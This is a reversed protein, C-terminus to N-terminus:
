AMEWWWSEEGRFDEGGYARYGVSHLVEDDDRNEVPEPLLGRGNAFGRLKWGIMRGGSREANSENERTDSVDQNRVAVQLAQWADEGLGGEDGADCAPQLHAKTERQHLLFNARDGGKQREDEEDAEKGAGHLLKDSVESGCRGQDGREANDTGRQVKGPDAPGDPDEKWAFNPAGFGLGRWRLKAHVEPWATRFDTRAPDTGAGCVVV